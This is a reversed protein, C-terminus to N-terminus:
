YIQGNHWPSVQTTSPPKGHMRKAAEREKLVRLNYDMASSALNKRAEDSYGGCVPRCKALHDRMTHTQEEYEAVTAEMVRKSPSKLQKGKPIGHPYETELQAQQAELDDALGKLARREALDRDHMAKEQAERESLRALEHPLIGNEPPAVDLSHGSRLGPDFEYRFAPDIVPGERENM